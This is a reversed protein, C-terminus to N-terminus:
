GKLGTTSIGEVLYKQLCIFILLTPVVSLTAMAFTAGYDSTSAPDCFLKLAISVTYNRTGKVYLLPALYDEWKWMFSFIACTILAPVCLPMIIKLFIRLNGCGDIRAAEDLEQPVGSMFQILLFIFFGEGFFRPLILAAYSGVLGLKKYWIFQPVMVVQFPMMMSILMCSFLVSRMPFRHFRAFGFAVLASSLVGGITGLIAIYFSNGFFTAFTTGGFGTWGNAYNELVFKQPILSNATLFVTKSEKFSSMVMWLLPYLMVVGMLCILTHYVIKSWRTEHNLM